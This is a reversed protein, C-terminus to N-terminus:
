RAGPLWSLRSAWARPRRAPEDASAPHFTCAAPGDHRAAGDPGVAGDAWAARGATLPQAALKEAGTRDFGGASLDDAEVQRATARQVWSRGLSRAYLPDYHRALLASLLPVLQGASPGRRGSPWSRTRWWRGEARGAASPWRRRVRWSGPTTACCSTWGPTWRRWSRSWRAAACRGGDPGGARHHARHPPEGGRDVGPAVPGAALARRLAADRVGEPVAAAPRASRGARGGRHVALAELDVVQEGLRALHQLVRTKASGTPGCLVRWSLTGACCRCATWWTTAGRGQLRGQAAPRGLGRAAAREVFSGSRMGGRWCYVLPRWKADFGRFREDLHRAINRAVMAGGIKRAEFASVQVYTTGM